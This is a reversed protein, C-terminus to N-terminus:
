DDALSEDHLRCFGKSRELQETGSSAVELHTNIILINVYDLGSFQHPIWNVRKLM